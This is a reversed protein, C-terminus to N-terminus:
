KLLAQMMEAAIWEAERADKINSGVGIEEGNSCCIKLDHYATNGSTMGIKTKIELVDAAAVSRSRSLGLFSNIVNIGEHDVEVRTSAFLMSAVGCILLLDFFGFVVPFFIPAGHRIMFWIAGSWIATFVTLALVTGPNRCPPYYFETGGSASPRVRIPSTPPQVYTAVEAQERAFLRAARAQQDPTVAARFVPVEFQALYDVGPVRARAELRWLTGDGTKIITSPNADGPIFFAVPITDGTDMEVVEEQQWAITEKTSSGDSDSTTVRNVCSLKLRVPGEPRIPNRLRIAGELTGGIVGPTCTMEFTSEGYRLWRRTLNLAWLLLGIGVLPFLFVLAALYNGKRIVGDRLVMAAIPMSILNWFGAFAWVFLMMPKTSSSVRGAVWDPRLLWPEATADADAIASSMGGGRIAWVFGTAGIGVFVLPILVFWGMSTFSRDLVADRPNRPNVFCFTEAGAPHRAVAEDVGRSSGSSWRLFQYRDGRYQTGDVSYAYTIEARYTAGDSDSHKKVESSLVRCPVTLWNRAATSQFFPGVMAFYTFGAGLLFFVFFFLGTVFRGGSTNRQTTPM